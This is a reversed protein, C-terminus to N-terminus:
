KLTITLHLFDKNTSTLLSMVNTEGICEPDVNQWQEHENCVKTLSGARLRHGALCSYTATDNVRVGDTTVTTKAVTPPAGCRIAVRWTIVSTMVICNHCENASFQTYCIKFYSRLIGNLKWLHHLWQKTRTASVDASELCFLERFCFPMANTSSLSSQYHCYLRTWCCM